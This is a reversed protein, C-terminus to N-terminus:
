FVPCKGSACTCTSGAECTPTTCNSPNDLHCRFICTAGAKCTVTPCQQNYDKCSIDCTSNPECTLALGSMDTQQTPVYQCTSGGACYAQGTIKALYGTGNV